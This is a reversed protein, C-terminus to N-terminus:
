KMVGLESELQEISEYSIKNIVFRSELAYLIPYVAEKLSMSELNHSEKDKANWGKPFDTLISGPHITTFAIHYSAYERTLGEILKDNSAKASGYVVLKPLVRESSRSSIIIIHGRKKDNKDRPQMKMRPLLERLLHIPAEGNTKFVETIDEHSWNEFKDYIPCGGACHILADIPEKDVDYIKNMVSILGATDNIDLIYYYIKTKQKWQKQIIDLESQLSNLKDKSRAIMTIKNCKGILNKCLERGIGSSAGTILIHKGEIWNNNIM